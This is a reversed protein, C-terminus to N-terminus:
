MKNYKENWLSVLRSFPHRVSLVRIANPSTLLYQKKDGQLNKAFKIINKRGPFPEEGNESRWIIDFRSFNNVQFYIMYIM